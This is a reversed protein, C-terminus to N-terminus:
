IYVIHMCQVTVAGTDRTMSICAYTKLSHSDNKSTNQKTYAKLTRQISSTFNEYNENFVQPGMKSFFLIIM